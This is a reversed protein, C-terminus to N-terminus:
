LLRPQHRALMMGRSRVADWLDLAGGVAIDVLKVLGSEAPVLDLAFDRATMGPQQWEEKMRRSHAEGM